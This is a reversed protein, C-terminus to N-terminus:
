TSPPFFGRGVEKKKGWKGRIPVSGGGRSLSRFVSKLCKEPLIRQHGSCRMPNPHSLGLGRRKTRCATAPGISGGGGVGGGGGGMGAEGGVFGGGGGGGCGWSGGEWWVFCEGGGGGGVCVGWLGGGWGGGVGGVGGGGWVVVVGVSESVLDEDQKKGIKKSRCELFQTPGFGDGFFEGGGKGGWINAIDTGKRM